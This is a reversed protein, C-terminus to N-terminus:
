QFNEAIKELAAAIKEKAVVEREYLTLKKTYYTDKQKIRVENQQCVTKNALITKDLRQVRISRKKKNKEKEIVNPQTININEYNNNINNTDNEKNQEQFDEMLVYDHEKIVQEFEVDGSGDAFSIDSEEIGEHGEIAAVGLMGVVIEEENSLSSTTPM